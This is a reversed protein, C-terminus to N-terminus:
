IVEKIKGLYHFKIQFYMDNPEIIIGTQIGQTKSINKEYGVHFLHKNQSLYDLTFYLRDNHMPTSYSYSFWNITENNYPTKSIHDSFSFISTQSNLNNLSDGQWNITRIGLKHNGFLTFPFSFYTNYGRRSQNSTKDRLLSYSFASELYKLHKKKLSLGISSTQQRELSKFSIFAIEKLHSIGYFSNDFSYASLSFPDKTFKIMPGVTSFTNRYYILDPTSFDFLSGAGIKFLHGLSYSFQPYITSKYGIVHASLKHEKHTISTHIRSDLTGISLKYPMDTAQILQVLVLILFLYLKM